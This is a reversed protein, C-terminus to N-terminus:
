TKTFEKLNKYQLERIMNRENKWYHRRRLENKPKLNIKKKNRLNEHVKRLKPMVSIM